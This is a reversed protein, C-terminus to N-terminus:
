EHQFQPLRVTSILQFRSWYFGITVVVLKVLTVLPNIQLWFLDQWRNGAYQAMLSGLQSLALDYLSGVCLASLIWFLPKRTLYRGRRILRALFFLSLGFVSADLFTFMKLNMVQTERSFHTLLVYVVYLGFAGRIVWKLRLNKALEAFFLGKMVGATGAIVSYVFLNNIGRWAMWVSLVSLLTALFLDAGFIQLPRTLFRWNYLAMLCPIFGAYVAMELLLYPAKM